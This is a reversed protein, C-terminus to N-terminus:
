KKYAAAIKRSLDASTFSDSLEVNFASVTRTGLDAKYAKWSPFGQPVYVSCHRAMAEDAKILGAFLEEFADAAKESRFVLIFRGEEVEGTICEPIVRHFPQVQNAM